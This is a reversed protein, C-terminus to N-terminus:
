EKLRQRAKAVEARVARAGLLYGLTLGVMLVGPIYLIHEFTM